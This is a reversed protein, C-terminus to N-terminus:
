CGVNKIILTLETEAGEDGIINIDKVVIVRSGRNGIVIRKVSPLNAM